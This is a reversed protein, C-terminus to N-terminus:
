RRAGAVDEAQFPTMCAEYAAQVYTPAQAKDRVVGAKLCERHRRGIHRKCARRDGQALVCAQEYAKAMDKVKAPNLGETGLYDWANWFGAGVFIGLVLLVVVLKSVLSSQPPVPEESM